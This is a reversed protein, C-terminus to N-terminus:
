SQSCGNISLIFMTAAQGRQQSLESAYELGDEVTELQFSVLQGCCAGGMWYNGGREQQVVGSQRGGSGLFAQRINSTEPDKIM